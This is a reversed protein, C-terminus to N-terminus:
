VKQVIALVVRTWMLSGGMYQKCLMSLEIRSITDEKPVEQHVNNM